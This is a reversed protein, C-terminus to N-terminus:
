RRAGGGDAAPAGGSANVARALRRGASRRDAV